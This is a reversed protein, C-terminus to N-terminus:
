EVSAVGYNPNKHLEQQMRRYDESILPTADSMPNIPARAASFFVPQARVLLHPRNDRFGGSM